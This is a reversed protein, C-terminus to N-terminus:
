TENAIELVYIKQIAKTIELMHDYKELYEDDCHPNLGCIINSIGYIFATFSIALGFSPLSPANKKYLYYSICSSVIGIGISKLGRTIVEDDITKDKLHKIRKIKKDLNKHISELLCSANAGNCPALKIVACLAHAFADDSEHRSKNLFDSVGSHFLLLDLEKQYYIPGSYANLYSTTNICFMIIVLLPNIRM